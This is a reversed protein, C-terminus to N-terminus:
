GRLKIYFIGGKLIMYDGGRYNKYIKGCLLTCMDESEGWKISGSKLLTASIFTFERYHCNLVCFFAAFSCQEGAVRIDRYSM